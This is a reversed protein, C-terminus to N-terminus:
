HLFVRVLPEYRAGHPHLRSEFLTLAEGCFELPEPVVSVTRPARERPRLRAVTAHARFARKEPVYVGAAALGDSVRSQLAGLTGDPDDLAACLVRARRPPLLVAGALSLRPAPGTAAHLVREVAAVDDAPRRGLFALTLHLADEAVPRWVAHDAAADRFAVLASRAAPPLELAVFLRLTERGGSSDARAAGSSAPRSSAPRSSSSRSSAPRPDSRSSSSRSSAPRPDSRSSAPRPDSRPSAPRPDSRSSAPRSPDTPNV